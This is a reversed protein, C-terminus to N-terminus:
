EQRIDNVLGNCYVHVDGPQWYSGLVQIAVHKIQVHKCYTSSRNVPQFQPCEHERWWAGTWDEHSQRSLRPIVKDLHCHTDVFRGATEEELPKLKEKYRGSLSRRSGTTPVAPAGSSKASAKRGFVPRAVSSSRRLTPLFNVHVATLPVAVLLGFRRTMRTM